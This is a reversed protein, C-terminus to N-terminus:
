DGDDGDGWGGGADADPEDDHRGPDDADTGPPTEDTAVVTREHAVVTTVDPEFATVPEPEPEKPRRPPAVYAWVVGAVVGALVALGLVLWDGFPVVRFLVLYIAVSLGLLLGWIAGRVPHRVIVEAPTATPSTTTM